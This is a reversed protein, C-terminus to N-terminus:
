SLLVDLDFVTLSNRGCPALYATELNRSALFPNNPFAERSGTCMQLDIQSVIM